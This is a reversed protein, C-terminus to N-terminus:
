VANLFYEIAIIDEGLFKFDPIDMPDLIISEDDKHDRYFQRINMLIQGFVNAGELIDTDEKTRRAAWFKDYKNTEEVIPLNGTSDLLPGFTNWHQLLKMTACWELLRVNVDNWDPRSDNRYKKATMKAGMPSPRSIIDAQHIPFKPYQQAAYFAENTKVKGDSLFAKFMEPVKKIPPTIPFGACMNSFEGYLDHTRLFTVCENRWYKKISYDIEAFKLKM